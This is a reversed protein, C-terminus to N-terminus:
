AKRRIVFGTKDANEGLFVHGTQSCFVKLDPGAAPDDALIELFAGPPMGRLAKQAKLVPVPCTQGTADIRVQQM